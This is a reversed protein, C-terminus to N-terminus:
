LHVEFPSFWNGLSSDIAYHPRAIGFDNRMAIFGAFFILNFIFISSWLNLYLFISLENNLPARSDDSIVVFILMGFSEHDVAVYHTAPLSVSSVIFIRDASVTNRKIQHWVRWTFLSSHNSLVDADTQSFRSPTTLQFKHLNFRIYLWWMQNPLILYNQHGVRENILSLIRKSITM